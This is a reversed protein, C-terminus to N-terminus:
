IKFRKNFIRFQPLAFIIALIFLMVGIAAAQGTQNWIFANQYLYYMMTVTSNNPGGDTLLQIAVFMKLVGIINIVIIYLTTSSVMPILIARIKQWRNAGDIEAATLVDEPVGIMAAIYLIVSQGLNFNFIVFIIIIIATNKNGLFNIGTIGCIELLYGVLGNAPNLLFNWVMSMVVMSVMYPFYFCGRIFSMYKISKDFVSASIFIGFVVTLSVIVVVFLLTNKVSTLFIPDKLLTLYNEFGVFVEEKYTTQYFSLRLGEVIPYVYFVLFMLFQPAIFLYPTISNQNRRFANKVM